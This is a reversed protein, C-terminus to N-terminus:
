SMRAHGSTSVVIARVLTHTIISQMYSYQKIQCKGNEKRTWAHYTYIKETSQHVWSTPDM